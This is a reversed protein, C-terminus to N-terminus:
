IVDSHVTIHLRSLVCDFLEKAQCSPSAHDSGLKVLQTQDCSAATHHFFVISELLNDELRRIHVVPHMHTHVCAHAHTCLCTCAYEHACVWVIFTTLVLFLYFAFYHRM